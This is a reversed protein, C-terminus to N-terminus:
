GWLGAVMLTLAELVAVGAMIWLIQRQMKRDVAICFKLMHDPMTAGAVAGGFLVMLYIAVSVRAIEALASV